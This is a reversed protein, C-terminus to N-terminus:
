ENSSYWSLLARHFDSSSPRLSPDMQVCSRILEAHGDSQWTARCWKGNCPLGALQEDGCCGAAIRPLADGTKIKTPWLPRQRALELVALGLSYMESATTYSDNGAMVEPPKYAPSARRYDPLFAAGFDAMVLRIASNDSGAGLLINAVTLDGHILGNQHIHALGGAFDALAGAWPRNPFSGSHALFPDAVLGKPAHRSSNALQPHAVESICPWVSGLCLEFVMYPQPGLLGAGLCQLVSRHAALKGYVKVEALFSAISWTTTRGSRGSTFVKVASTEDLAYVIASTGRGLEKLYSTQVGPPWSYNPLGCGHLYDQFQAKSWHTAEGALAQFSQWDCPPQSARSEQKEGGPEEAAVDASSDGYTIGSDRHYQLVSRPLLEEVSHGEAFRERVLSSSVPASQQRVDVVRHPPLLALLEAEQDSVPRNIVCLVSSLRHRLNMLADAGAVLLLQVKCGAVPSVAQEIAANIAGWSHGPRSIHADAVRAWATEEQAALRLMALRHESSLLQSRSGKQVFKKELSTASNPAYYGALVQWGAEEMHAKAANLMGTHGRHVPCFSGGLVLVVGEGAIGAQVHDTPISRYLGDDVDIQSCRSSRAKRKGM